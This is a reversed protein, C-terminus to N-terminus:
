SGVPPQWGASSDLLKAPLTGLVADRARVALRGRAQLVMGARRARRAMRLARPRRQRAYEELAPRLSRGPVADHLLATLTAADELALCGGQGLHHPMVHAADGLLVFGGPGAPFAFSRPLPRSEVVRQQVLDDPETAQLLADIPQHWGAFWRRLLTLQQAPSEPRFAGPATAVWYIGGRRSDGASGRAGLLAYRFRHGRGLTQGGGGDGAPLQPAANGGLPLQPAANGAPPLQPARYWPIVARWATCGADVTTSEPALRARLVSDVGDAAVVVDAHWEVRGDTVGPRDDGTACVGRVAVGTRIEIRGTLGAVLADYVDALHAVLAADGAEAGPQVLWQGDPRRIGAAPVPSAIADLGDALGLAHLARVGNARLLLGVNPARLRDGRELLTVEWGARALGGAVALGGIGAGVVLASRM